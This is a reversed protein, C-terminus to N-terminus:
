DSETGFIFGAGGILVPDLVMLVLESRYGSSSGVSDNLIPDSNSGLSTGVQFWGM